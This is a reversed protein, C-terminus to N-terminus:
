SRLAIFKKLLSMSTEQKIYLQAADEMTIKEFTVYDGPKLQALLPLDVSIVNGIRPYGGTTQRDAMLIIPQGGNPVQITGFTVPSSLIEIEEVRNLVDGDLRYGMRDAYNSVKYEKSFFSKISEETFQDYEFDTIVRLIPHKKYKPLANNCIAWKTKIRKEEQLNQIFRSAVEAGTGIQFYDGKKLMRGEIGGLAARIYTSKSGMTRNINIGGAFTVYARCGSKAKGLCLMSGEEALIPRWLPIREGNLLPEMDAGGIALLTTKKILLKPGMITIELGAENEENGVLMNIMRLANKDMAGGVPVGYQQYHSRGLDQVTTFMGAHLIEVDM